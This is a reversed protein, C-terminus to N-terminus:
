MEVYQGTSQSHDVNKRKVATSESEPSHAQRLKGKKASHSLTLEKDIIQDLVSMIDNMDDDDAKRKLGSLDPTALARRANDISARTSEPKDKIKRSTKTNSKKKSDEGELFEVDSSTISREIDDDAWMSMSCVHFRVLTQYARGEELDKMTVVQKVSLAIQERHLKM